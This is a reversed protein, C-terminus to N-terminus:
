RVLISAPGPRPRLGTRAPQHTGPLVLSNKRSKVRCDPSLTQGPFPVRTGTSSILRSCCYTAPRYSRTSASRSWAAARSASASRSSPPVACDRSSRSAAIELYAPCSARSSAASFPSHKPRSSRLDPRAGACRASRGAPHTRRPRAAAQEVPAGRRGAGEIHGGRDRRVPDPAAAVDDHAAARTVPTSSSTSSRAHAPRRRRGPRPPPGAQRAPPWASGAPHAVDDRVSCASCSAIMRDAGDPM